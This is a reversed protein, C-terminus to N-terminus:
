RGGRPRRIRDWARRSRADAPSRRRTMRRSRSHSSFVRGTPALREFAVLLDFDMRTYPRRDSNEVFLTCSLAAIQSMIVFDTRAKSGRSAFRLTFTSNRGEVSTVSRRMCKRMEAIIWTSGIESGTVNSVANSRSEPVTVTRSCSQHAFIQQRIVLPLQTVHAPEGRLERLPIGRDSPLQEDLRLLALVRVDLAKISAKADEGRANAQLDVVVERFGGVSKEADHERVQDRRDGSVITWSESSV